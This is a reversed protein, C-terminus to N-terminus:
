KRRRKERDCAGLDNSGHDARLVLWRETDPFHAFYRELRLARIPHHGCGQTIPTGVTRLMQMVFRFMFRLLRNEAAQCRFGASRQKTEAVALRLGIFRMQNEIKPRALINTEAQEARMSRGNDAGSHPECLERRSGVDIQM